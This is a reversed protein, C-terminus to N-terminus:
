RDQKAYLTGLESDFDITRDLDFAMWTTARAHDPPQKKAPRQKEQACDNMRETLLLDLDM